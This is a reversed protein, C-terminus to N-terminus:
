LSGTSEDTGGSVAEKARNIAQYVARKEEMTMEQPQKHFLGFTTMRIEPLDFFANIQSDPIVTTNDRQLRDNNTGDNRRRAITKRRSKEMAQKERYKVAIEWLREADLELADAIAAVTRYPPPSKRDSELTCIYADSVGVTDAIQKQTLKLKRRQAKLTEGFSRM